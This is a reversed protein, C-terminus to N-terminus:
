PSALAASTAKSFAARASAPDISEWKRSFADMRRRAEEVRPAPANKSEELESMGQVLLPHGEDFRGLAGLCAGLANRVYATEWGQIGAASREAVAERLFPEAEANKGQQELALGLYTLSSTTNDEAPVRRSQELANRLIREAEVNKRQFVLMRGVQWRARITLPHEEGLARTRRVLTERYMREANPLDGADRHFWGMDALLSLTLAHDPGLTRESTALAEDLLSKAREGRGTELYMEALSMMGRLTTPHEAGLVKRMGRLAHDYIQEAESHNQRQRLVAALNVELQLVNPHEEGLIKQDVALAERFMQEAQAHDGQFYLTWALNSLNDAVDHHDNGFLERRLALAERFMTEAGAYDGRSHMVAALDNLCSALTEKDDVTADNGAASRAKELAERILQEAGEYDGAQWRLSGLNHLSEAVEPHDEGLGGKRLELARELHPRAQDFLGLAEYTKGITTRVSAQVDWEGELATEGQRSAEDLMERVTIERGLAQAPSASALMDQLFQNVAATKAAERTAEREASRARVFGYGMGAVGVVMAAFVLVAAAVMTRHRRVFKRVLYARSPPAAVIPEDHLYREIDAALERPSSYRRERDKELAMMVIWDLEGRLARQLSLSQARSARLKGVDASTIQSLRTSPKAPDDERVRRRFEDLGMVPIDKAEFPLAGILLEYLLVGLSYVDSRTDIDGSMNLQEPSMYELTGVLTGAQTVMALDVLPEAIAKAIGFDIIKPVHREDQVTVLVNSPKIDRHIIAKEHAHQVGDCVQTFLRLRATTDLSHTECHQTIPVGPVYEMVFYPGLDGAGADLVKAINPHDMMALAQREAEFRAIFQQSDLGARILKLAVRRRIPRLQEAVWVEGMGGAGVREELRYNGLFRHQNSSSDTRASSGADFPITAGADASAGGEFPITAGPDASGGELPITAGPDVTAEEFPITAAADAPAGGEFPITAGADIPADPPPHPARKQPKTPQNEM